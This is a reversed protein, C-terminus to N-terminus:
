KRTVEKVLDVFFKANEVPVDPLIGHGLNFIHHSDKMVEAIEKVGKEIEKQDYLRMPELNGQLVYRDSLIKQARSIPTAWDVGCVDFNGDIGELYSGVGKSFLIVPTNPYKEKLYQKEIKAIEKQAKKLVNVKM